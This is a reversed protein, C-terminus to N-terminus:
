NRDHLFANGKNRLHLCKPIHDPILEQQKRFWAIDEVIVRQSETSLQRADELDRELEVYQAEFNDMHASVRVSLQYAYEQDAAEIQGLWEPRKKNFGLWRKFGDMVQPMNQAGAGGNLYLPLWENVDANSQSTADRLRARELRRINDAHHLESRFKDIGEQERRKIQERQAQLTNLTLQAEYLSSNAQSLTPVSHEGGYGICVPCTWSDCSLPKFSSIYHSVEEWRFDEPHELIHSM